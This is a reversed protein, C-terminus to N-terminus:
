SCSRRGTGLHDLVDRPVIPAKRYLERLVEDLHQALITPDAIISRKIRDPVDPAANVLAALYQQDLRNNV